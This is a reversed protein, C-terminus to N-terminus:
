LFDSDAGAKKESQLSCSQPFLQRPRQRWSPARVTQGSANWVRFGVGGVPAPKLDALRRTTSVRLLVLDRHRQRQLVPQWWKKNTKTQKTRLLTFHVDPTHPWSMAERQQRLAQSISFGARVTLPRLWPGCRRGPVGRAREQRGGARLEGARCFWPARGASEQIKQGKDYASLTSLFSSSHVPKSQRRQHRRQQEEKSSGKQFYLQHPSVRLSGGALAPRPGPAAPVPISGGAAEAEPLRPVQAGADKRLPAQSTPGWARSLARSPSGPHARPQTWFSM